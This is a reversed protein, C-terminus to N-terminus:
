MHPGPLAPPPGGVLAYIVLAFTAIILMGLMVQITRTTSSLLKSGHDEHGLDHRHKRRPASEDAASM